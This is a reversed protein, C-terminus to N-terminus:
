ARMAGDSLRSGFEYNVSYEPKADDVSAPPPPSFGRYVGGLVGFEPTVAYYAGAGPMVAVVYGSRQTDARLDASSSAILEVRAGPTITLGQWTVADTAYLALARSSEINAETVTEPGGDPVLRGDLMLFGN